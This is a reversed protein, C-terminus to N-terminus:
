IHNKKVVYAVTCVSVCITNRLSLFVYLENTMREVMCPNYQYQRLRRLRILTSGASGARRPSKHQPPVVACKELGFMRTTLSSPFM